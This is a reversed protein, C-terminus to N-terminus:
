ILFRVFSVILLESNGETEINLKYGSINGFTEPISLHFKERRDTYIKDSHIDIVGTVTNINIIIPTKEYFLGTYIVGQKDLVFLRYNNIVSWVSITGLTVSQWLRYRGM